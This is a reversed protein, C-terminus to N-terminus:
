PTNPPCKTAYKELASLEKQIKMIWEAQKSPRLGHSTEQDYLQGWVRREKLLSAIAVDYSEMKIIGKKKLSEIRARIKRAFLEAM